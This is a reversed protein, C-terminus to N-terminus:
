SKTLNRYAQTLVANAKAVTADDVGNLGVLVQACEILAERLALTEAEAHLARKQWHDKENMFFRKPDAAAPDRARQLEVLAHLLKKEISMM